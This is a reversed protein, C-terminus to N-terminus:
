KNNAAAAEEARAGKLIGLMGYNGEHCAYEYIYGEAKTMPVLATWPRTWISPDDVTFQYLLTDADKRRFREILRLNEDSRGRLAANGIGEPMFNITEVVLTDGEWHGRSDGTWGRLTGHPRGDLPIIRVSHVMENLLAVTDRTQFIQVNNNYARPLMPPGSNFGVICREWLTREEPGAPTNSDYMATYAAERKRGEPTMPPLKGDPPDVILSTQRAAKTGFDYFLDNYARAVDAGSGGDRRDRNNAAITNRAFEAAEQDTLTSKDALESPRELPTLLAFSWVGQLDSYSEATRLAKSQNSSNGSANAKSPRTQANASLAVSVCIASLFGLFRVRM